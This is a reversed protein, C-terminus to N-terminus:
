NLIKQYEKSSEITVNNDNKEEDMLPEMKGILNEKQEMIKESSKPKFKISNEIERKKLIFEDEDFNRKCIKILCNYLGVVDNKKYYYFPTEVFFYYSSTCILIFIGSIWIYVTYYNFKMSFLNAFVGATVYFSFSWASFKKRMDGGM